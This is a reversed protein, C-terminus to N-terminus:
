FIIKLAHIVNLLVLDLVHIVFNTVIMVNIIKNFVLVQVLFWAFKILYFLDLIVNLKVFNDKYLQISLVLMKVFMILLIMFYHANYVVLKYIWFILYNVNYVIEMRLDMANKVYIIVLTVIVKLCIHNQIVTISM